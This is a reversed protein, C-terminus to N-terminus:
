DAVRVHAKAAQMVGHADRLFAVISLNAPVWREKENYRSAITTNFTRAEGREFAVPTDIESGTVTARYVHNHCYNEIYDSGSQQFAIIGDEIVWMCLNATFAAGPEVTTSIYILNDAPNYSAEIAIEAEAPQAIAERVQAPWKDKDTAEGTHNVVGKPWATIGWQDNMSTGEPTMLCVYNNAPNNDDFYTYDITVGFSGGHISVPIVKDGYQEMLGELVAHAEPCNSCDQGTYDEILVTRQSEVADMEIFRDDSDIGSCATTAAGLAIALLATHLKNNM